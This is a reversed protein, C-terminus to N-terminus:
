VLQETLGIDEKFSLLDYLARGSWRQATSYGAYDDLEETDLCHNSDIKEFLGVDIIKLNGSLDIMVNEEHLDYPNWGIKIIDELANNWDSVIDPSMAELLNDHFGEQIAQLTKGYIREVVLVTRGLLTYRAYIIPIYDLEQLDRLVEFDNSGEEDTEITKFAYEGYGVVNGYSGSGLFDLDYKCETECSPSKSLLSMAIEEIHKPVEYVIETEM